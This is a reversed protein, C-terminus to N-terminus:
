WWAHWLACRSCCPTRAALRDLSAQGAECVGLPGVTIDQQYARDSGSHQDHQVQLHESDLPQMCQDHWGLVHAPAPPSSDCMSLM